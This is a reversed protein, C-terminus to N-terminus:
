RPFILGSAGFRPLFAPVAARYRRFQEGFQALMDAEEPKALRAYAGTTALRGARQAEDFLSPPNWYEPVFIPETLGLLSTALSVRMTRFRFAPALAYVLPSCRVSPALASVPPARSPL